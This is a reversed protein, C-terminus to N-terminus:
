CRGPAPLGWGQPRTYLPKGIAEIERYAAPDVNASDLIRLAARDRLVKAEAVDGLIDRSRRCALDALAAGIATQLADYIAAASTKDIPKRPPGDIWRVSDRPVFYEGFPLAILLLKARRAEVARRDEETRGPPMTLPPSPLAEFVAAAPAALDGEILVGQDDLRELSSGMSVLAWKGSPKTPATVGPVSSDRHHPAVCAIGAAFLAIALTDIWHVCARLRSFPPLARVSLGNMSLRCPHGTQTPVHTSTPM